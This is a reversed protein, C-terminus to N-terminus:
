AIAAFDAFVACMTRGCMVNGAERRLNELFIKTEM